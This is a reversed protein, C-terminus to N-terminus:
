NHDRDNILERLVLPDIPPNSLHVAAHCNPCLPVLDRIPDIIYNQGLQSVPTTHHVHIFNTAFDGYIEGFDFNCAFCRSGYYALCASRNKPNREYKNVLVRTLAGEPLGEDDIAEGQFDEDPLLPILCFAVFRIVPSFFENMNGILESDSVNTKVSCKIGVRSDKHMETPNEILTSGSFIQISFGDFVLAERSGWFADSVENIRAEYFSNLTKASDDFRFEMFIKSAIVEIGFEWGNPSQLEIEASRILLDSFQDNSNATVLCNLKLTSSLREALLDPFNSMM